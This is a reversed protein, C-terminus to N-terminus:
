QERGYSRHKKIPVEHIEQVSPFRQSIGVSEEEERRREKGKGEDGREKGRKGKREKGEM